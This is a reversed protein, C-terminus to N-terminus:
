DEREDKGAAAIFAGLMPSAISALILWLEILNM